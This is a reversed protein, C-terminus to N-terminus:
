AALLALLHHPAVEGRDIVRQRVEEFHLNGCCAVDLKWLAARCGALVRGVEDLPDATIM